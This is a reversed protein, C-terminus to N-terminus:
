TISLARLWNPCSLISRVIIHQGGLDHEFRGSWYFCATKFLGKDATLHSSNRHYSGFEIRIYRLSVLYFVLQESESVVCSNCVVLVYFCDLFIQGMQTFLYPACMWTIEQEEENKDDVWFFWKQIYCVVVVSTCLTKGLEVVHFDM